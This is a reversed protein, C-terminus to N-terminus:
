SVVWSADFEGHPGKIGAVLSACCAAVALSKEMSWGRIMAFALAGSFSDGAGTSDVTKVPVSDYAIQRNGEFAIGGSVGRTLVIRRGTAAAEKAWEEPKKGKRKKHRKLVGKGALYLAEDWNPTIVDALTAARELVDPAIRAVMPGPDFLINYGKAKLKELILAVRCGSDGLLYYGTVAAANCGEAVQEPILQEDFERECGEKTLFTREGEPEVFVLCYGTRCAGGDTTGVMGPVAQAACRPLARRNREGAQRVCDVPMGKDRLYATCAEGAQDEGVYSVIYPTGGLIKITSAMNIACGGVFNASSRIVGDHGRGPFRDICYYHDIMLGGFVLIKNM